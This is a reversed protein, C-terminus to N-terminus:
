QPQQTALMGLSRSSTTLSQLESLLHGLTTPTTRTTRAPTSLEADVSTAGKTIYEYTLPLEELFRYKHTYRGRIEIHGDDNLTFVQHIREKTLLDKHEKSRMISEAKEIVSPSSGDAGVWIPATAGPNEATCCEISTGTHGERVPVLFRNPVVTGTRTM